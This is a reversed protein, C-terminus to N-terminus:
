QIIEKVSESVHKWTESDNLTARFRSLLKLEPSCQKVM